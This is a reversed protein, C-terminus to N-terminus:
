QVILIRDVTLILESCVLIIAVCAHQTGLCSTIILSSKLIQLDFLPFSRHPAGKVTPRCSIGSPLTKTGLVWSCFGQLAATKVFSYREHFTHADTFFVWEGCTTAFFFFWSSRRGADWEVRGAYVRALEMRRRHRHVRVQTPSTRPPSGAACSGKRSHWRVLSLMFRSAWRSSRRPVFKFAYDLNGTTWAWGCCSGPGDWRTHQDLDCASSILAKALAALRVGWAL